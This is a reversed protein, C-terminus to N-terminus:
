NCHGPVILWQQKLSNKFDNSKRLSHQFTYTKRQSSSNSLMHILKQAKTRSLMACSQVAGRAEGWRAEGRRAEGRRPRAEGRRAEGRRAETLPLTRKDFCLNFAKYLKAFTCTHIFSSICQEVKLPAQLFKYLTARSIQLDVNSSRRWVINYM